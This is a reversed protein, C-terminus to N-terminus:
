HQKSSSLRFRSKFKSEDFKKHHKWYYSIPGIAVTLEKPNYRDDYAALADAMLYAIPLGVLLGDFSM